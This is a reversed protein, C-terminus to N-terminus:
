EINGMERMLSDIVKQYSAKKEESTAEVQKVYAVGLIVLYAEFIMSQKTYDIM